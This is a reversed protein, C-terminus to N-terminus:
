GKGRGHDYDSARKAKNVLWSLGSVVARDVPDMNDYAASQAAYPNDEPEPEPEDEPEPEPRDGGQGGPEPAGQPTPAKKGPAAGKGVTDASLRPQDEDDLIEIICEGIDEASMCPSPSDNDAPTVIYGRGKRGRKVVILIPDDTNHKEESM